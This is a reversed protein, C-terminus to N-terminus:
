VNPNVDWQLRVSTLETPLGELTRLIELLMDLSMGIVSHEIAHGLIRLLIILMRVWISSVVHTILM